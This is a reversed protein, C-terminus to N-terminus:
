SYVVQQLELYKRPNAMTKLSDWEEKLRINETYLQQCELRVQPLFLYKKETYITRLV